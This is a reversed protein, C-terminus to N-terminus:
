RIDLFYEYRREPRREPHGVETRGPRVWIATDWVGDTTCLLRWGSVEHAFQAWEASAPGDRASRSSPSRSHSPLYWNANDVLLLGSPKLHALAALACLDRKTPGDVIVLDFDEGTEAIASVYDCDGPNSESNRCLKLEINQLNQSKARAQVTRFWAPDTELSTIRKVRRALWLTSRGSGWEFVIDTPQLWLELFRVAKPTLWPRDPHTLSSVLSVSRDFIYRPTWHRFTKM